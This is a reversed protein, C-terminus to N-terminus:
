SRVASVGSRWFLNSAVKQSQGPINVTLTCSGENTAYNPDTITYTISLGEHRSRGCRGGAPGPSGPPAM